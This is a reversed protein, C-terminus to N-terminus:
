QGLSIRIGATIQELGREIRDIITAEAFFGVGHRDEGFRLGASSRSTLDDYSHNASWVPSSGYAWVGSGLSFGTAPDTVAEQASVATATLVISTTLAALRM